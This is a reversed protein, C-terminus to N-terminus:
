ASRKTIDQYFDDFIKDAAWAHASTLAMLRKETTTMLAPAKYSSDHEAESWAHQFLTKIQLEFVKNTETSLGYTVDTPLQLIFHEGFYGFEKESNPAKKTNEVYAFREKILESVAVVDSLYFVVVRAGVQDQIEDLPDSYKLEGTDEDIKEAKGVFRDISKARTCINDIRPIGKLMEKLHVELRTASPVLFKQFKETYEEKVINM